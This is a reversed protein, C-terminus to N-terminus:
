ESGKSWHLWGYMDDSKVAGLHLLAAATLMWVNQIGQVSMGFEREM